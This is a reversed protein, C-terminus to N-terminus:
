EIEDLFPDESGVMADNVLYERRQLYADRMFEYKEGTVFTEMGMVQARANIISGIFLRHHDDNDQVYSIPHTMRDALRGAGDRLTSPGFVPIVIYPGQGVGWHGLTQGFDENYKPINGATAVDFLGGIGITSNFAFRSTSQLAEKPKGQLVQNVIVTPTYLNHFFNNIGREAFDPTIFKYGKTIPTIIATDLMHNFAFIPRNISELPDKGAHASFSLVTGLVSLALVHKKM